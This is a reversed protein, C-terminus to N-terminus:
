RMVTGGSMLSSKWSGHLIGPLYRKPCILLQSRDAVGLLNGILRVDVVGQTCALIHDMLSLADRMSGGAEQAILTLSPADIRVKEAECLHGLHGVIASQISGGCTM